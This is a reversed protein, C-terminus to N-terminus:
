NADRTDMEIRPFYVSFFSQKEYDEEQGADKVGLEPTSNRWVM